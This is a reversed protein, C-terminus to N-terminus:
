EEGARQRDPNAQKQPPRPCEEEVIPWVKELSRIQAVRCVTSLSCSSTCREDENHVPFQGGRISRIIQQVRDMIKPQLAHWDDSTKLSQDTLERVQLSGGRKSEFGKGQINWYGTALAVAEQDALLLQEAALAYLPLQLQRGSSVKDLNLKVEKGSKYDIINFVTVGGVRGIDVRDIAGTLCIREDGLDLEFPLPTSARDAVEEESYRTEPGFRVEFHAPRPPEDLHQWQARYQTEQEAYNPAWAEIERREIERLSQAIGRLPSAKVAADLTTLFRQVMNESDTDIAGEGLAEGSLQEHLTALVQHLLSGRRRPDNRLTLENLPELGLLRESFYRFPCAAYSELRSPSWLHKSDYRRALAAQAKDSLLLGEYPGYSDRLSRGAICDIGNLISSGARVFNPHSIMGALWAHKGDLAQIVAQRRFSSSSSPTVPLALGKESHPIRGEGVSREMETLLPSPLLPHGKADLATYSFTLSETARTALEYFLLRAESRRVSPEAQEAIALPVNSTLSQSDDSTESQESLTARSSSEGSSFAQEGLGALFLHKVSLKRASEASLIRVRGVTDQLASVRETHALTQILERIEPLALRRPEALSWSDALAISRLSRRLLEWGIATRSSENPSDSLAGFHGLLKELAVIWEPISAQTPLESLFDDLHRLKDLAISAPVTRLDIEEEANSAAVSKRYDLQELLATKSAPLQASRICHEIAVRPRTAYSATTDQNSDLRKFLGNGIVELLSEFPWDEQHMRLLSLLARVVPESELRPRLESAFPIGFDPFVAALLTAMSEGGRCVVAIDRPKAQGTRLLTKIRQAIAEVEGTESEASVIEVGKIPSGVEEVQTPERFFQQQLQRLSNKLVSPAVRSEIEMQPFLAQLRDFTQRTKAFLHSHSEAGAEETTPQQVTLSFLLQSSCDGLLRLIDYQAATFDNFGSVVVLDYRHPDTTATRVLIERAAWFRGEADYLDGRHLLQQYATYISSLERARRDSRPRQESWQQYDEPWIDARKQDAIFEDVQMVFGVTSAVQSFHTIKRSEVTTHIAQQLLRRKQSTAIPRIQKQSHAIISEALGSFTKLNPALLAGKGSELLSEQLQQLATQNPALWCCKGFPTALDGLQRRYQGLLQHTKGCRAPGALLQVKAPM